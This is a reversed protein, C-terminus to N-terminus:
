LTSVRGMRARAGCKMSLRRLSSRHLATWSWACPREACLVSHDDFPPSNTEASRAVYGNSDTYAASALSYLLAECELSNGM